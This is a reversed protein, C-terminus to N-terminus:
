LIFYIQFLCSVHLVYNSREDSTLDGACRVVAEPALTAEPAFAAEPAVFSRGFLDAVLLGLGVAVKGSVVIVPGLRAEEEVEILCSFVAGDFAELHVHLRVVNAAM